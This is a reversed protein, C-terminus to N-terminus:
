FINETYTIDIYLKFLLFTVSMPVVSTKVTEQAFSDFKKCAYFFISSFIKEKM